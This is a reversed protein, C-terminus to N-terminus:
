AEGSRSATHTSREEYESWSSGAPPYRDVTGNKVRTGGDDEKGLRIGLENLIVDDAPSTFLGEM